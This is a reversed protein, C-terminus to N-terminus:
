AWRKGLGFAFTDRKELLTNSIDIPWPLINFRSISFYIGNGMWVMKKGGYGSPKCGQCVWKCIKQWLARIPGTLHPLRLLATTRGPKFERKTLLFETRSPQQTHAWWKFCRANRRSWNWVCLRALRMPSYRPQVFTNDHVSTNDPWFLCLPTVPLM